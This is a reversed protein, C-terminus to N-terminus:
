EDFNWEEQADARGRALKIGKYALNRGVVEAGSGVNDHGDNLVKADDNSDAAQDCCCNEEGQSGDAVEKGTKASLGKDAALREATSTDSLHNYLKASQQHKKANHSVQLQKSSQTLVIGDLPSLLKISQSFLFV